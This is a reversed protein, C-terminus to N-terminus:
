RRQGPGAHGVALPARRPARAARGPEQTGRSLLDMQFSGSSTAKSLPPPPAKWRGTLSSERPRLHPGIKARLQTRHVDVHISGRVEQQHRSRKVMNASLFASDVHVAQILLHSLRRRQVSTCAAAVPRAWPPPPPIARAGGQTPLRSPSTSQTSLPESGSGRVGNGGKGWRM